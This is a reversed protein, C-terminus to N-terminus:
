HKGPLTWGPSSSSCPAETLIVSAAPADFRGRHGASRPHHSRPSSSLTPPAGHREDRGVMQRASEAAILRMGHESAQADLLIEHLTTYLHERVAVAVLRRYSQYGTDRLPAIPHPPRIPLVQTRVPSFQGAGEFRASVVDLSGILRNSFDDLLEQALQLLLRPLGDVSAPTPYVRTAALGARTLAAIPRRGVCYLLGEGASVRAEVVTKVLRTNYDGCLGLDSVILLFGPPAVFDIEQTVGVEAMAKEIEDRYARAAPLAQHSLRFHHASLSKMASVAEHLTQLTHLRRELQRERKM